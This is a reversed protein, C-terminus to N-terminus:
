RHSSPPNMRPYELRGISGLIIAQARIAVLIQLFSASGASTSGRLWYSQGRGPAVVKPLRVPCHSLSCTDGIEVDMQEHIMRYGAHVGAVDGSAFQKVIMQALLPLHDSLFHNM